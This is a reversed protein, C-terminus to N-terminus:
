RQNYRELANQQIEVARDVNLTKLKDMYSDYSDVPETGLIIKLTMEDVLTNVDNMIKALESAEDTTPTIPPLAYKDIDTKSWITLAEKQAPLALYQEIYRVDQVFPGGINGRIYLSMAQAPSLKEPNKMLLDTYVPEGNVMNYSVGEQGFNFYMHGEESYGWDLLRAALEVNKSTSTIAVNSFTTYVNDRQSFKPTEGKNLVPYSVAELKAKPDKEQVIPTWKGIGSGSNGVTAGTAGTTINADLAKSDTTAINKDLLGEKYWQQFTKLFEKYGPQTPGFIVKGDEQYFNRHANFAGVFEGSYLNTITDISLPASANKKEKFATLVTHWEDITEPKELGLEDLWDQRIIPGRYIQLKPDGRLFPFTYYSGDDTKVMKDVDPHESLYKKLNPAYKDIVDNLKLIYGDKIAKEPGGPFQFWDYEIMDPLDGSALLVNLSDKEQGAPPSTFKLPVGTRKQWEQYFPVDELTAAKSTTNAYPAWYTLTKDTKLPYTTSTGEAPQSSSSAATSAPENNNGSQSCGALAASIMVSALAAPAFGWKKKYM